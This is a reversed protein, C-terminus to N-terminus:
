FHKPDINFFILVDKPPLTDNIIAKNCANYIYENDIGRDNCGLIYACMLSKLKDIPAYNKIETKM